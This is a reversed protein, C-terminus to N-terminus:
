TGTSGVLAGDMTYTHGAFDVTLGETGFKGQAAILGNGACDSLLTIKDGDVAAGWAAELTAYNTTTEGHTLAAVAKAITQTGEGAAVWVYGEPAAQSFTTAKTVSVKEPTSELAATATADMVIDGTITGSTLTLSFGDKADSGSASIEVDGNITSNGTVTVNVSPYSAYRCVDFAFNGDGEKAKITSSDIVVNGNNNSLTYRNSGVLQSGDLEMNQLTLNSYNQVLMKATTSTIKGNMFTITNDKLLQFAQTETGTSGVTTGDVTYTFGAFDVTLGTTYKGQPVKIGNGSCNALLTITDGDVAAAFAAELTTYLYNGIKAVYVITNQTLTASRGEKTTEVYEVKGGITGTYGEAIVVGVDCNYNDCYAGDIDFSIATASSPKFTTTGALTVTGRCFSNNYNSFGAPVTETDVIVNELTLDCYNQILRKITTSETSVKLTGDKVKLTNGSALHMAQTKTNTSGMGPDKFEYTKSNLDLIISRGSDKWEDPFGFSEGATVNDVLTVTTPEAARTPCAEFAEQVSAYPTDGIKAVVTVDAYTFLGDNETTKVMRGESATINISKGNKDVIVTQGTTLEYSAVDALLKITGTGNAATAAAAFTTYLNNGTSAVYVITNQTLTASRGEKTTEVYEVKGGITGTYGEAIVVGVDCNYNDCYAGDIDFSIATASSPKFTTTGALTVTGRCFSNNYNSFGAPVTETDVIVNELTLDCYNQILRKITTSETSVKLTGDKVKLTNGSALHMAQTKTNTSGMGPDKFEYTKSNLDLIISRGSDKWEDPFGFSEGATVNDVLTVTTPETASTPRAEFAEQITEYYVNGIQAIYKKAVLIYGGEGDSDWRYDPHLAMPTGTGSYTVTKGNLDISVGDAVAVATDLIVNNALTITQGSTANEIAGLITYNAGNITAEAPGVKYAATETSAATMNVYEGEVYKQKTQNVIPKSFYGGTITVLRGVSAPDANPCGVISGDGTTIFVGGTIETTSGSTSGNYITEKVATIQGGSVKVAGANMNDIARYAESTVVGGTVQITGTSNNRIARANNGLAANNAVSGGSILISPNSGNDTANNNITTNTSKSEVIGKEISVTAGAGTNNIAYGTNGEVKASEGNVILKAAAGNNDVAAGTSTNQVVGGSITATSNSGNSIAANSGTAKVSSEGKVELTAGSGNNSIAIGGSTVESGDVVVKGNASGNSIAPGTSTNIVKGGSLVEVKKTGADGTNAIAASSGCAQVTGGNVTITGTAGSAYNKIAIANGSSVVVKSKVIITGNNNRVLCETSAGTISGSKASSSDDITFEGGAKEFMLFSRAGDATLSHGALDLTLSKTVTVIGSLGVNDTLQITDGDSAASIAPALTAYQTPVELTAGWAGGALGLTLLLAAFKATLSGILKNLQKM